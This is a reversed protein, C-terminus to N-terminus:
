EAAQIDPTSRLGRAVREAAAIEHEMAWRHPAIDWNTIRAMDWSGGARLFALLERRGYESRPAAGAPLCREVLAWAADRSAAYNPATEGRMEPLTPTM